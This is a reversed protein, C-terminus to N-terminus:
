GVQASGRGAAGIAARSASGSASDLEVIQGVDFLRLSGGRDRGALFRAGGGVRAPPPSGPLRASPAPLRTM